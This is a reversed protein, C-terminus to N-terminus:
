KVTVLFYLILLFILYEAVGGVEIYGFFSCMINWFVKLINKNYFFIMVKAANFSYLNWTKKLQQQIKVLAM